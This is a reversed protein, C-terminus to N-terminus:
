DRHYNSAAGPAERLLARSLSGTSAELNSKPINIVVMSSAAVIVDVREDFIFFKSRDLSENKSTIPRRGTPITTKAALVM